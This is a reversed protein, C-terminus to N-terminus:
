EKGNLYRWLTMRCVKFQKAIEEYTMKDKNKHKKGANPRYLNKIAEICGSQLKRPRGM